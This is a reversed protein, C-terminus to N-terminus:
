LLIVQKGYVLLFLRDKEDDREVKHLKFRWIETISQRLVKAPGRKKMM